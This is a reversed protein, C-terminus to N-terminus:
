SIKLEYCLLFIKLIFILSKEKDFAKKHLFHVYLSFIDELIISRMKNKIMSRKLIRM